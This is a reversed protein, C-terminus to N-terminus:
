DPTKEEGHAVEGHGVNGTNLKLDYTQHPLEIGAGDLAQEIAANVQNLVRDQHNVDDIWWQVRVKRASDGFARFLVEVPKDPLVGVVGRVAGEVVRQLKRPDTGYAVGIDTRIRFSPDPYTYNVVQSQGILSNPITVERNDLPRISTIRIGINTVRGWTELEKLYIDDGVRFPRDILLLFGSVADNIAARAGIAIVVVAFLIVASLLTINIGFHSLVISATVVSAFLFGLREFMEILPNLAKRNEDPVRTARYWEAAFAVLRMSVIYLMALALLFFLDDLLLRAEDNWLELRLVAIRAIVIAVLWRLERGVTELFRDDFETKTRRVIWRALGFLLYIGVLIGLLVFLISVGVNIWAVATLGLFSRDAFGAQATLEGIMEEVPGPTPTPVPTRQAVTEAIGEVAQIPSTPEPPVGATAETGGDPTAPPNATIGTAAPGSSCASALLALLLIASLGILKVLNRQRM